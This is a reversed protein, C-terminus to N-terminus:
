FREPSLYTLDISPETGAIIESVVRGTIPALSVGMMAHGTAITLNKFSSTRGIIPLGDPTLPRMGAWINQKAMEENSVELEPVYHSPAQRIAEVRRRNISLGADTIELTGAFRVGEALPTIAVKAEALLLPIDLKGSLSPAMFSYGKAAQIPISFKLQKAVESSSAGTALVVERGSFVGKDTQVGLIRNNHTEFASVESEAFFVVGAKELTAHLSNILHLPNLHADRPLWTAGSITLDLDPLKKEVESVSLMALPLDFQSATEVLEHCEDEGKQSHYLMLIGNQEFGFSLSDDATLQEFLAISQLHMDLLLPMSREVHSQTAARAFKWLWRVLDLNARPKIYFPSDPNLMWKLGQRIVGPAALPIFHSPVIMGANGSSSGRGIEGKDIVVVNLGAQNLYWASCLGIVGGGIILVDFQQSDAM